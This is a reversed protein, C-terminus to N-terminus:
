VARLCIALLQGKRGQSSLFDYKKELPFFGRGELHFGGPGSIVFQLISLPKKDDMIHGAHLPDQYGIYLNRHNLDFSRQLISFVNKEM